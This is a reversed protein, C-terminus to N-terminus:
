QYGPEHPCPMLFVDVNAKGQLRSRLTRRYGWLMSDGMQLGNPLAPHREEAKFLGWVQSNDGKRRADTDLARSRMNALGAILM